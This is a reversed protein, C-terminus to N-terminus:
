SKILSQLLRDKHAIESEKYLLAYEAAELATTNIELERRTAEICNMLNTNLDLDAMSLKILEKKSRKKLNKLHLKQLHTKM